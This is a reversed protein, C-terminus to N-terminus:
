EAPQLRMGDRPRRPGLELALLGLPLWGYGSLWATVRQFLGGRPAPFTDVWGMRITGHAVAYRMGALLAPKNGYLKQLASGNLVNEVPVTEIPPEQDPDFYMWRGDVRAALRGGVPDRGFGGLM